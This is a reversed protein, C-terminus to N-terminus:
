EKRPIVAAPISMTIIEPPISKDKVATAVTAWYIVARNM